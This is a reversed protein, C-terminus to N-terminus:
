GHGHCGNATGHGCGQRLTFLYAAYGRVTTAKCCQTALEQGHCLVSGKPSHGMHCSYGQSRQALLDIPATPFTWEQGRSDM